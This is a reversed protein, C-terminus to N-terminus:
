LSKQRAHGRLIARRALEDVSLSSTLAKKTAEHPRIYCFETQYGDGETAEGSAITRCSIGIRNLARSVSSMLAFAWIVDESHGGELPATQEMARVFMSLMLEAAQFGRIDDRIVLRTLDYLKTDPNQQYLEALAQSAQQQMGPNAALMQLSMMEDLHAVQSLRMTSLIGGDADERYFHTTTPDNDYRDIDIDGDLPWDMSRVFDTRLDQLGTFSEYIGGGGRFSKAMSYLSKEVTTNAQSLEHMVM